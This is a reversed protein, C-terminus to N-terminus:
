WVEGRALNRLRWTSRIGVLLLLTLLLVLGDCDNDARNDCVELSIRQEPL